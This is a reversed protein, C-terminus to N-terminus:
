KDRWDRYGVRHLWRKIPERFAGVLVIAGSVILIRLTEDSMYDGM